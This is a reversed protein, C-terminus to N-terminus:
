ENDNDPTYEDSDTSTPTEPQADALAMITFYLQEYLINFQENMFDDPDVLETNLEFGKSELDALMEEIWISAYYSAWTGTALLDNYLEGEVDSFQGELLQEETLEEPQQFNVHIVNDTM